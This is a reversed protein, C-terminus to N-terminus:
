LPLSRMKHPLEFKAGANWVSSEAYDVCCAVAGQACSRVMRESLFTVSQTDFGTRRLKSLPKPFGPTLVRQRGASPEAREAALDLSPSGEDASPPALDTEM